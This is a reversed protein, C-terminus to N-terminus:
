DAPPDPVIFYNNQGVISGYERVNEDKEQEAAVLDSYPRISKHLRDRFSTPGEIPRWGHRTRADIWGEHEAEAMISLHDDIIRKVEVAVQPDPETTSLYLGVSGLVECIRRPPM